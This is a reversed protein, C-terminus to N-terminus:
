TAAAPQVTVHWKGRVLTIAGDPGITVDAGYAPLTGDLLWTERLNDLADWLMRPGAQHVVAPSTGASTARAWSGDPHLLWATRHGSGTEEYHNQVGPLTVGLMSYLEWAGSVDLVPYRSTSIHEGDGTRADPSEDLLVPPYDPGSRAPMFGARDWETRGAAGGDPTKDATVILGTGALVTVLRGHPRLATLWSVPVPAVSTMSIIRDYSGPLKGTADCTQLSPRLSLRALRDAAAEAVYQDIDVSTVHRGGLRRTLLACGYGSGTGVDLVDLGDALGAYRYMQVVLGPQTASSTPRGAPHDGHQAHDAHLSGIRTILTRDGYAARMWRQPDSEGDRLTWGEGDLWRFWRPILVHRPMREVLPRWRSFAGTIGAALRRSHPAWDLDGM